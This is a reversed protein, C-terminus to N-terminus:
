GDLPVPALDNPFHIGFMLRARRAPNMDPNAALEPGFAGNLLSSALHFPAFTHRDSPLTGYVNILTRVLFEAIEGPATERAPVFRNFNPMEGDLPDNWGMAHLTSIQDPTLERSLFQNSVAELTLAGDDERCLQVYVEPHEDSSSVNVVVVDDTLAVLAAVFSVLRELGVFFSPDSPVEILQDTLDVVSARQPSEEEMWILLEVLARVVVSSRMSQGHLVFNRLNRLGNEPAQDTDSRASQLLISRACDAARPSMEEIRQMNVELLPDIAAWDAIGIPIDIPKDFLDTVLHEYVDAIRISESVDWALMFEEDQERECQIRHVVDPIRALRENEALWRWDDEYEPFDPDWDGDYRWQHDSVRWLEEGRRRFASVYHFAFVHEGGPGFLLEHFSDFEYEDPDTNSTASASNEDIGNPSRNSSQVRMLDQRVLLKVLSAMLTAGPLVLKGTLWSATSEIVSDTEGDSRIEALENILRGLMERFGIPTHAMEVNGTPSWELIWEAVDPFELDEKLLIVLLDLYTPDFNSIKFQRGHGLHVPMKDVFAGKVWWQLTVDDNPADTAAVQRRIGVVQASDLDTFLQYSSIPRITSSTALPHHQIYPPASGYWWASALFPGQHHSHFLANCVPGWIDSSGRAEIFGEVLHELAEEDDMPTRSGSVALSDFWQLAYEGSPFRLSFPGGQTMASKDYVELHYVGDRAAREGLRLEWIGHNPALNTMGM